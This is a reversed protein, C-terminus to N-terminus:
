TVTGSTVGATLTQALTTFSLILAASPIVTETQSADALGTSGDAPSADSGTITPSGAATDKYKFDASSALDAISVSTITALDATNRFVGGGSTTTLYVTQAGSTTPNNFADQRQVTVTGSTVGATLTQALTTF